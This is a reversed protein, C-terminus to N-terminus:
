RHWDRAAFVARGRLREQAHHAPSWACCGVARSVDLSFRSHARVGHGVGNGRYPRPRIAEGLQLLNVPEVLHEVFEDEQSQRM